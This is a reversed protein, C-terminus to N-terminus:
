GGAAVLHSRVSRDRIGDLRWRLEGLRSELRSREGDSIATITPLFNAAFRYCREARALNEDRNQNSYTITLAYADSVQRQILVILQRDTRDRLQQLGVTHSDSMSNM